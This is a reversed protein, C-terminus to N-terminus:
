RAGAKSLAFAETKSTKTVGFVPCFAEASGGKGYVECFRLKPALDLAFRSSIGPEISRM